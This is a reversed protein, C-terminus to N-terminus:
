AAGAEDEFLPSPAVDLIRVREEGRALLGEVIHSGLM